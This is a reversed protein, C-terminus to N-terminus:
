GGVAGGASINTDVDPDPGCWDPKFLIRVIRDLLNEHEPVPPGCWRRGLVASSRDSSIKAQDPPTQGSVPGSNEYQPTEHDSTEAKQGPSTGAASGTRAPTPSSSWGSVGTQPHSICAACLFLTAGLLMARVMSYRLSARIKRGRFPQFAKITLKIGRM